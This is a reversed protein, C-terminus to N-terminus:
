LHYQKILKYVSSTSVDFRQAVFSPTCGDKRMEIILKKDEDSIKKPRGLYKGQRKANNIGEQQRERILKREFQAFAGLIQLMLEQMPSSGKSFTLNETYFRVEVGKDVLSSVISQLEILNRALRDISHVYFIDGERLYNLCEALIPRNPTASSIKEEFVKDLVVTDLQRGTEQEIAKAIEPDFNKVEDFSYM